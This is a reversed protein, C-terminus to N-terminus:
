CRSIPIYEWHNNIVNKIAAYRRNTTWLQLIHIGDIRLVEDKWTNSGIAEEIYQRCMNIHSEPFKM